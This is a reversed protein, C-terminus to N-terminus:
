NKAWFTKGDAEFVFQAPFTLLMKNFFDLHEKTFRSLECQGGNVVM